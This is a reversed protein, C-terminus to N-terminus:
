KPVGAHSTAAAEYLQLLTAFDPLDLNRQLVLPAPPAVPFTEAAITDLAAEVPEFMKPADGFIIVPAVDV